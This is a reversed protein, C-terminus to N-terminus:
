SWRRIVKGLLLSSVLRPIEQAKAGGGGSEEDAVRTDSLRAFAQCEFSAFVIDLMVALLVATPGVPVDRCSPM